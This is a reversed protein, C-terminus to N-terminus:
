VMIAAQVRLEVLREEELVLQEAHPGGLGDVDLDEKSPYLVTLALNQCM